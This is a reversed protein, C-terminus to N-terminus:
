TPRVYGSNGINSDSYFRSYNNQKSYLLTRGGNGTITIYSDTDISLTVNCDATYTLDGDVGNSDANRSIYYGSAIKIAYAGDHNEIIASINDIETSALIRSEPLITVDYMNGTTGFNSSISGNYAKAVEEFVILYQGSWDSPVETVKVYYKADAGPAANQIIKLDVSEAGSYSLTITATKEKEETNPNLTVTTKGNSASIASIINDPDSTETASIEGDINYTIYDFTVNTENFIATKENELVIIMPETPEEWPILNIDTQGSYPKFRPSSSNYKLPLDETSELSKITFTGDNEKIISLSTVEASYTAYGTKKGKNDTETRMSLYGNENKISYGSETSEITWVYEDITPISYFDNCSIDAVPKTVSSVKEADYYESKQNSATMLAWGSSTYAGILYEGDLKEIEQLETITVNIHNVKGAEFKGYEASPITKVITAKKGDTTTVTVTLNEDAALEFPASTIYFSGTEGNTITANSANLSVTSAVYKGEKLAGTQPNIYFTGVMNKSESNTLKINSVNIDIGSNNTVNIEFLTSAHKMQVVTNESSVTAYGYLPGNIHAASNLGTQNQSEDSRSGFYVYGNFYGESDIDKIYDDYPYVVNLETIDGPNTVTGSFTNGEGKTFKNDSYSGESYKAVVSLADDADWDVKYSDAEVTLSTKTSPTIAAEITFLEGNQQGQNAENLDEVQCATAFAAIAMLPIITKKM